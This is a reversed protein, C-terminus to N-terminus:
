SKRHNEVRREDERNNTTETEEQKLPVYPQACLNLGCMNQECYNILMNVMKVHQHHFAVHPETFVLSM